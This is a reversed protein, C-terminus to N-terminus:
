EVAWLEWTSETEAIYNKRVQKIFGKLTKGHWEFYILGDRLNDPPLDKWNGTAFNYEVPLFLQKSIEQDAYIDEVGTIEATRSMDTSKFKVQRANIGILSENRQVLFYPNFPLMSLEVAYNKDKITNWKINM